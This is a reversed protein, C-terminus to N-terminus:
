RLARLLRGVRSAIAEIDGETAILAPALVLTDGVVRLVLDEDFFSADFARAGRLGPSTDIPALIQRGRGARGSRSHLVLWAGM